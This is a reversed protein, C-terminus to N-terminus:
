DPSSAMAPYNIIFLLKQVKILAIIKFGVPDVGEPRWAASCLDNWTM